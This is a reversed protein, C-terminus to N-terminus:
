VGMLHFLVFGFCATILLLIVGGFILLGIGTYRKDKAFFYIIAIIHLIPALFAVQVLGQFTLLSPIFYLLFGIGIGLWINGENNVDSNKKESKDQNDM